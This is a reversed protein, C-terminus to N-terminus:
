VVVDYVVDMSKVSSSGSRRPGFTTATSGGVLRECDPVPTWSRILVGCYRFSMSGPPRVRSMGARASVSVRLTNHQLWDWAQGRKAMVKAM